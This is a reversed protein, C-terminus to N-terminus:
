CVSTGKYQLIYLRHHQSLACKFPPLHCFDSVMEHIDKGQLSNFSTKNKPDTWSVFVTVLGNANYLLDHESKTKQNKVKTTKKVPTKTRSSIIQNSAQVPNGLAFLMLKILIGLM